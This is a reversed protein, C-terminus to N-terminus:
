SAKQLDQRSDYKSSPTPTPSNMQSIVPNMPETESRLMAQQRRFQMASLSNWYVFLLEACLVIFVIKRWNLKM